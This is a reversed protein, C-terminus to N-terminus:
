CETLPKRSRNGEQPSHDRCHEGGPMVLRAPYGGHTEAERNSGSQTVSTTAFGRCLTFRWSDCRLCQPSTGLLREIAAARLPNASAGSRM